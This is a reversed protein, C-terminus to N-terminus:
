TGKHVQDIHCLEWHKRRTHEMFENEMARQFQEKDEQKMAQHYYMTDKEKEMNALFAIPDKMREQVKYDDQHLADYINKLIQKMAGTSLHAKM